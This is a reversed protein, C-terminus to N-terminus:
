EIQPWDWPRASPVVSRAVRGFPKSRTRQPSLSVPTAATSRMHSCSSLVRLAEVAPKAQEPLTAVLALLDHTKAFAVTHEALIGKLYKEICQQCHFGVAAASGVPAKTIWEAVVFDEEAKEIWELTTRKM